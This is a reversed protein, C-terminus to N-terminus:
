SALFSALARSSWAGDHVERVFSPGQLAIARAGARDALLGRLVQELSAPDAQVIPLDRGTQERVRDRVRTDVAGVVVRGAAMAECAAVGYDDIRFQDLVIDARGFFAPMEDAPVGTIREYRILGEAVLREVIPEILQTGKVVTSSPAHVVLPVDATLVEASTRWRDPDIVVPLWTAQPADDRLGLTSIFVPAGAQEILARHRAAEEALVPTLPWQDGTYPSYPHERAHREPSRLDSGHSLLAVRIGAERLARVEDAVSTGYVDGFLHRGAEIIVHTFGHLVDARQRRQWTRSMLYVSGPVRQDVPYGYDVGASYAMAVASVRPDREAARAWQWGQGAFNAPAILLRVPRDAPARLAFRDAPAFGLRRPAIAALLRDPVLRAIRVAIRGLGSPLAM